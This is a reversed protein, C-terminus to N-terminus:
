FIKYKNIELRTQQHKTTTTTQHHKKQAIQKTLQVSRAIRTVYSPADITTPHFTCEALESREKEQLARRYKVSSTQNQNQQQIRELYTEPSSLIKLKGESKHSVRNLKPRFTLLAMEEQEM